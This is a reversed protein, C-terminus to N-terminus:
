VPMGNVLAQAATTLPRLREERLRDHEWYDGWADEETM